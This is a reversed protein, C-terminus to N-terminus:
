GCSGKNRGDLQFFTKLKRKKMPDWVSLTSTSLLISHVFEEFRKQGKEPFHQLDDKAKETVLASSLLSKLPSMETFPTRACHLEICQCLKLANESLRVAVNGSLQYHESRESSKTSQPFSNLYHKVIHAVHPTTTVLRDLAAEDQILGVMGGHRKM